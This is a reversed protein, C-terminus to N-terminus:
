EGVEGGSKTYILRISQAFGEVLIFFALFLLGATAIIQPTIDTWQGERPGDPLRIPYGFILKAIGPWVTLREVLIMSSLTLSILGPLGALVRPLANRFAHGMVVRWEPLGKSRATRIYDEWMIEDLAAGTVRALYGMPLITLALLPLLMGKLTYPDAIVQWLRFEYTQWTWITLAQGTMVVMFDPLSLGLTAVVFGLVRPMRSRLAYLAGILVGLVSGGITASGFLLLTNKWTTNLRPIFDQAPADPESNQEHYPLTGHSVQRGFDRVEKWYLDASWKVSRGSVTQGNVVMPELPGLYYGGTLHLLLVLGTGVLTFLLLRALWFRFLKPILGTGGIAYLNNLHSNKLLISLVELLNIM